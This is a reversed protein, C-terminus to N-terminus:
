RDGGEGLGAEVLAEWGGRLTYVDEAGLEERLREAVHHSRLCSQSSCYVIIPAGPEWRELVGVFGEEWSEENVLLAGPYAGAQFDKEIRADIWLADEWTQAAALDIEFDSANWPLADPRVAHAVLACILAILLLAGAQFLSKM